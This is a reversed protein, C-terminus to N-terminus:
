GAEDGFLASVKINLVEALRPIQRPTPMTEGNEWHSVASHTVGMQEALETQNLGM